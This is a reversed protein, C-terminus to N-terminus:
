NSKWTEEKEKVRLRLRRACFMNFRRSVCVNHGWIGHKEKTRAQVVLLTRHQINTGSADQQESNRSCPRWHKSLSFKRIANSSPATCTLIDHVLHARKQPNPILGVSVPWPIEPVDVMQSIRGDEGGRCVGCRETGRDTHVRWDCSLDGSLKDVRFLCWVDSLM